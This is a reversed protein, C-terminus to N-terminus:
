KEKAFNALSKNCAEFIVEIQKEYVMQNTSLLFHFIKKEFYHMTFKTKSM